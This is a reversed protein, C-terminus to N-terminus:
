GAIPKVNPRLTLEQPVKQFRAAEPNFEPTEIFQLFLNALRKRLGSLSSEGRGRNLMDAERDILEVVDRSLNCDFEKVTWKVHLLVDLREDVTLLPLMLGNYLEMLEKARTTFPTHVQAVEGDSMQWRKPSSMLQLMWRIHKERNEDSAQLRLRDITQLLKQEKQLLQALLELREQESTPSEPDAAAENIRATEQVRWAELENYLVEFDGHNQPHMRRQIEKKHREQVEAQQQLEAQHVAEAEEAQRRRLAAAQCRAFWGRTYRQADIAKHLRLEALQESDFYPLPAVLVDFEEVVVHGHVEMQTGAERVTIQSRTQQVATQTERHYKPPPLPEDESRVKPDTQSSAHHYEVATKRSRFGGLFPKKEPMARVIPVQILKPPIDAGFQVEVSVVDPMVYAAAPTIHEELYVIQLEVQSLGGGKLGSSELTQGDFLEEGAHVLKMNPVPIKLDEECMAKVQGVTTALAFRRTHSFGEPVIVFRIDLETEAPPAEPVADSAEPAASAAEPAADAAEPAADAAEPAAATPPPAANQILAAAAEPDAAEAAETPVPEAPAPEADDGM